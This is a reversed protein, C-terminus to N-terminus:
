KPRIAFRYPIYLFVDASSVQTWRLQENLGAVEVGYDLGFFSAYKSSESAIMQVIQDRYQDPGLITLTLSGRKELLARGVATVSHIYASISQDTDATTDTLSQQVYFRIESTDPRRGDFIVLNRFNQRTITKLEYDGYVLEVGASAARALANEMMAYIEKKRTDEDRSDSTLAVSQAAFDAKRRLGIVTQEDDFYDGDSRQATVIINGMEAVGGQQAHSISACSVLCIALLGVHLFNNNM